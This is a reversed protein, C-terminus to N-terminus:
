RDDVSGFPAFHADVVARLQTMLAQAVIRPVLQSAPAICRAPSCHVNAGDV